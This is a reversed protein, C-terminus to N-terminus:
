QPPRNPYERELTDGLKSIEEESLSWNDQSKVKWGGEEKREILLPHPDMLDRELSYMRHNMDMPEAYLETEEGNIPYKITFRKM